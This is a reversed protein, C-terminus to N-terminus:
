SGTEDTMYRSALCRSSSPLLHLAANGPEACPAHSQVQLDPKLLPKIPEQWSSLMGHAWAHDEEPMRMVQASGELLLFMENGRDGQRVVVSGPLHVQARVQMTHQM